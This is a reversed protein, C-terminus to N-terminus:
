EATVLRLDAAVLAELLEVAIDLELQGSRGRVRVDRAQTGVEHATWRARLLVLAKARQQFEVRDRLSASGSFLGLIFVVV